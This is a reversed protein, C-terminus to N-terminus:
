LVIGLGRLIGRGCVVCVLLLVQKRPVLVELLGDREGVSRAHAIHARVAAHIHGVFEAHQHCRRKGNVVRPASAEKVAAHARLDDARITEALRHLLPQLALVRGAEAGPVHRLHCRPRERHGDDCRQVEEDDAEAALM